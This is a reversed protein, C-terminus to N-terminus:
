WRVHALSRSTTTVRLVRRYVYDIVIRTDETRQSKQEFRISKVDFREPVPCRQQIRDSRIACVAKHDVVLHRVHVPDIEYVSQTVAVDNRWNNENRAIGIVTYRSPRQQQLARRGTSAGDRPSGQRGYEPHWEPLRGWKGVESHGSLAEALSSLYMGKLYRAFYGAEVTGRLRNAMRRVPSPLHM